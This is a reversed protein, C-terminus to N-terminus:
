LGTPRKGAAARSDNFRLVFYGYALMSVAVGSVLIAQRTRFKKSSAAAEQVPRDSEVKLLIPTFSAEEWAKGPIMTQREAVQGNATHVLASTAILLASAYSLLRGRKIM